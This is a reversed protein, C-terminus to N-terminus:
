LSVKIEESTGVSSPSSYTLVLNWEGAEPFDSVPIYLPTCISSTSDIFSSSSYALRSVGKSLTATCTGNGEIVSPIFSRIELQNDIVGASSIAVAVVTKGSDNTATTSTDTTKSDNNEKATQSQAEDTETRTQDATVPSETNEPTTSRSAYWLASTTAAAIFLAAIVAILIYKKRNLAHQNKYRM